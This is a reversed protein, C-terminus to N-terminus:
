PFVIEAIETFHLYEYKGTVHNRGILDVVYGQCSDLFHMDTTEGTKLQVGIKLINGSACCTAAQVPVAPGILRKMQARDVSVNTGNTCFDEAESDVYGAFPLTYGFKVSEFDIQRTVGDTTRVSVTPLPDLRFNVPQGLNTISLTKSAYGSREALVSAPTSVVVNRITFKGDTDTTDSKTGITVKASRVPQGNSNDLVTGSLTVTTSPNQGVARRKGAAYLPFSLVMVALVVAAFRSTKISNM